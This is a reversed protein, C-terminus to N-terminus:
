KQYFDLDIDGGAFCLNSGFSCGQDNVMFTRMAKSDGSGRENGSGSSIIGTGKEVIWTRVMIVCSDGPSM